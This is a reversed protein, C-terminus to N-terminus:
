LILRRETNKLRREYLSLSGNPRQVVANDTKDDEEWPPTEGFQKYHHGLEAQVKPIDDDSIDSQDLRQAAAVVGKWVVAGDSPRHHPLKLDGFAVPPMEKAWAYHGAIHNKEDDTLDAWAKDTFDSLNPASWEADKPALKESVDPPVVGARPITAVITKRQTAAVIKPANKYASLDMELGNMVLKGDRMSAAVEKSIEIEDAFGYAVAEDATLWTEADLLEIIEDDSLSTKNQYAAILSVRIQDLDDALKRFDDSNGMAITWPNHIMMMANRPMSVTDGAMAIVSAISAALGDIHVNIQAPHRQLMSHIAQGAFVDGGPSNIYVDITSVNGLAALDQQFQQPTVEDGWWTMSDIPGYLYLEGNGTQADNRFDWFKKRTKPM